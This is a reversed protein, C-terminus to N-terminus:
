LLRKANSEWWERSAKNLANIYVTDPAEVSQRSAKGDHLIWDRYLDEVKAAKAAALLSPFRNQWVSCFMDLELFLDHKFM